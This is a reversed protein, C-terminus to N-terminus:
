STEIQAASQSGVRVTRFPRGAFQTRSQSWGSRADKNESKTAAPMTDKAGINHTAVVSEHAIVTKSPSDNVVSEFIM